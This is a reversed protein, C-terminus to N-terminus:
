TDTTPTWLCSEWGADSDWQYEVVYTLKGKGRPRPTWRQVGPHGFDAIVGLSGAAAPSPMSWAVPVVSLGFLFDRRKM